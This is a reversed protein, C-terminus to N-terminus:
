NFDLSEADNEWDKISFEGASACLVGENHLVQVTLSPSEYDKNFKNQNTKLKM